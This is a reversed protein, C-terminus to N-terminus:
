GIQYYDLIAQPYLEREAEKVRDQLMLAKVILGSDPESEPVPITKQAIIKGHDYIEDVVHVTCGSIKEGAEIVAKHVNIGYMGKGGYKPLLAPHINLIRNRYNPPVPVLSTWGALIIYDIGIGNATQFITDIDNSILFPIKHQEAIWLTRTSKSAIMKINMGKDILNRITSGYGNTLVILRPQM